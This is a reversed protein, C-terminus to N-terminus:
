EELHRLEKKLVKGVISKPLEKLFEISTPLKYVALRSRCFDILESETATEGDKLVVFSKVQEGRTPHPIGVSSAELVKSNMFLVEDIERPFVNFGGSIVMDKMRDVIYFYGDEDMTAVDGTHLWGDRITTNTEQERQWYGQMVQPGRVLLEGPEGVPLLRDADDVDVIRCETDPLPIGISGAKREGNFPNIHTVPSAETLGYGEVIVAGTRSEFDHIIEVPLPASGSFFGKFCTMDTHKLDKHNIMGIYMTPVLPGFTPRFDKIAKLLKGPDPRPVLINGWGMLISLNMATTLGFVHFFPLAGLMLEKGKEFQRFWEAVQQVQRSINGHTLKVGKAVGTTGGTYQIMAVDELDVRMQSLHPKNNEIIKEWKYVNAADKVDAALKKKKAVLPFLINKPFPLYDGISTYIIQKIDTQPRLDIMRNGLLDLTVLIKAGSDKFQHLLERDSYLPCNMVVIAGLKLIAYYAAVCPIINPLLIAVRDGKGVGFNVLSSAFRDVMDELDSYNLRYGQFILAPNEPFDVASRRLMEPLSLEEYEVTPQVGADYSDLWVMKQRLEEKEM